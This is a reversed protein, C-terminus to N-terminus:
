SAPGVEGPLATCETAEVSSNVDCSSPGDSDVRRRSQPKSDRRPMCSSDFEEDQHLEDPIRNKRRARRSRTDKMRSWSDIRQQKLAASSEVPMPRFTDTDNCVRCDAACLSERLGM